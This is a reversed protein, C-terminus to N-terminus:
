GGPGPSPSPSPSPSPPAGKRGVQITITSGPDVQKGGIPVQSLVIGEQHPDTTDVYRVDALLGAKELAKVAEAEALGVVRPVTVAELKGNSVQIHVASGLVATAGGGPTQGVVTNLPQSSPTKEVIPTFNAKVLAAQAEDSKLGVVDPVKGHQPAPPAEFGEVPLGALAKVM